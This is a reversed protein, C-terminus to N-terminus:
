DINMVGEGTKNTHGQLHRAEDGLAAGVGGDGTQGAHADPVDHQLAAVGPHSEELHHSIYHGSQSASSPCM